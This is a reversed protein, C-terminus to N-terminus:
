AALSIRGGVIKELAGGPREVRLHGRPTIGAAVGEVPSKLERGRLWDRLAFDDLEERTLEPAEIALRKRLVPVIAGLVELRDLANGLQEALFAPPLISDLERELDFRGVNIGVGVVAHFSDGRIQGECLVGGLKGNGLLLDNPWKIKVIPRLHNSDPTSGGTIAISDIAEAIALGTRIPLLAMAEASDPRLLVSFMLSRGGAAQWARGRQGRGETQRDAVVLAWEPGDSEALLRARDQTSTVAGYYEVFPIAWAAAFAAARENDALQTLTDGM